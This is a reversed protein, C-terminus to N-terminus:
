HGHTKMLNRRLFSSHSGGWWSARVTWLCSCCYGLLGVLGCISLWCFAAIDSLRPVFCKNDCIPTMRVRDGPSILPGSLPCRAEKEPDLVTDTSQSCHLGDETKAANILWGTWAPALSIQSLEILPLFMPVCLLLSTILLLHTYVNPRMWHKARALKCTSCRSLLKIAVHWINRCFHVYQILAWFLFYACCKTEYFERHRGIKIGIWNTSLM